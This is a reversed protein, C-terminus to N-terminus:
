GVSASASVSLSAQLEKPVVDLMAEYADATLDLEIKLGIRLNELNKLFVEIQVSLDFRKLFDVVKDYEPQIKGELLAKPDNSELLAILRRFEEELQGAGLLVDVNLIELLEEFVKGVKKAINAPNIVELKGIIADFIEEVERAIFTIDFQQLAQTLENVSQRLEELTEGISAIQDIQSELYEILSTIENLLGSIFDRVYDVLKFMPALSQTLQRQITQGLLEKLEAASLDSRKLDNLPGEPAHYRADWDAFEEAITTQARLIKASWDALNDIPLSFAPQLPNFKDIFDLLAAKEPSDPLNQLEAKPFRQYASIWGVLKEKAKLQELQDVVANMASEVIQRLPASKIQELTQAAENLNASIATMDEIQDIKAKIKNGFAAVQEEADELPALRNQVDDLLDRMARGTEAISQIQKTVGAVEDFIENAEDLPLAEIISEIGEEIKKQLPAVLAHPDIAEIKDIIAQFPGELRALYQAPNAVRNLEAKIKDLEERVPQLLKLPSYNEMKQLLERYPLYINEGIFQEPSFRAVEQILLAPKDKIALLIPKPGEEIIDEMKENLMDVQPQISAPLQSLAASLEEKIADIPISSAIDLAKEAAGIGVIVKATVPKFTFGGLEGNIKDLQGRIADIKEVLKPDGLVGTLRQIMAMLEEVLAAPNFQGVLDNVTSFTTLLTERVPQFVAAAGEEILHQFDKLAKEMAEILREVGLDDIAQEVKNMLATIGVTAELMKNKLTEIGSIAQNIADNLTEKVATINLKDLWGKITEVAEAIKEILAETGIEDLLQNLPKILFTLLDLDSPPDLISILELMKEEMRSNFAILDQNLADIRGEDFELNLDGLFARLDLATTRLSIIKPNTETLDGTGVQTGLENLGLTLEDLRSGIDGQQIFAAAEEFRDAFSQAGQDIFSTQVYQRLNALSLALNESLQDANAENWFLLTSLKDGLEDLLPLYQLPYLHRPLKQILELMWALLREVDLPDPILALMEKVRNLSDVIEQNPSATEGPLTDSRFLAAPALVEETETEEGQATETEEGQTAEPESFGINSLGGLARLPNLSNSIQENLNNGVDQFYGDVSNELDGTLSGLDSPVQDQIHAYGEDLAASQDPKPMPADNLFGATNDIGKTEDLGSLEEDAATLSQVQGDIQNKVGEEDVNNNLQNFVSGSGANDDDDFTTALDGASGSVSGLTEGLGDLMSALPPTPDGFGPVSLLDPLQLMDMFDLAELEIALDVAELGFGSDEEPEPPPVYELITLRYSFQEPEGALERVEFADIVVQSFYARGVIEALFDVPAKALYLARLSELDEQATAGYYIGELLIRVSARGMNQVVNGELGPLRHSAFSAKELTKIKHIRTLTIGGIEVPM